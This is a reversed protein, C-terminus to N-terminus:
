EESSTPRRQYRQYLWVAIGGAIIGIAIALEHEKVDEFIAAMIHGVLKGALGFTLAWLFAGIFDLLAFKKPDFKSMGVVFPLVTRLGYM